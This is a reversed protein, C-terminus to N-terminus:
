KESKTPISSFWSALLIKLNESIGKINKNLDIDIIKHRHSNAEFIGENHIQIDRLILLPIKLASAISGEIQNWSTPTYRDTFIKEQESKEREIVTYAHARELGVILAGSCNKMLDRIQDFPSEESYIDSSLTILKAGLSRMEARLHRLFQQQDLRHPGGVSLFIKVSNADLCINDDKCFEKAFFTVVMELVDLSYRADGETVLGFPAPKNHAARLRLSNVESLRSELEQNGKGSSRIAGILKGLTKPEPIPEEWRKLISELLGELFIGAQLVSQCYDKDECKTLADDGINVLDAGLWGLHRHLKISIALIDTM